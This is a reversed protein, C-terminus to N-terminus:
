TKDTHMAATGACGSCVAAASAATTAAPPAAALARRIGHLQPAQLQLHHSLSQQHRPWCTVQRALDQVVTQNEKCLLKYLTRPPRLNTNCPELGSLNQLPGVLPKGKALKTSVAASGAQLRSTTYM